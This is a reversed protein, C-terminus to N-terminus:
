VSLLPNLKINNKIKTNLMILLNELDGQIEREHVLHFNVLGLYTLRLRHSENVWEGSFAFMLRHQQKCRVLYLDRGLIKSSMIFFNSDNIFFEDEYFSFIKKYNFTKSFINEINSMSSSIHKVDVEGIPRGIQLSDIGILYSSQLHSNDECEFVKIIM